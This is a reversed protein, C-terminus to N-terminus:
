KVSRKCKATAGLGSTGSSTYRSGHISLTHRSLLPRIAYGMSRCPVKGDRLAMGQVASERNPSQAGRGCGNQASAFVCRTLPAVQITSRRWM